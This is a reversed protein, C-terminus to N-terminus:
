LLVEIGAEDTEGIVTGHQNGWSKARRRQRQPRARPQVARHRDGARGLGSRHCAPRASHVADPEAAPRHPDLAAPHRAPIIATPALGYYGVVRGAVHVVMVM